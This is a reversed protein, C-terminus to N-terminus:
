LIHEQVNFRDVVLKSHMRWVAHTEINMICVDYMCVDVNLESLLGHIFFFRFFRIICSTLDLIYRYSYVM